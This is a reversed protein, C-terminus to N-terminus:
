PVITGPYAYEAGNGWRQTGVTIIKSGKDRGVAEALAVEYNAMDEAYANGKQQKWTWIIGLRHAREDLLFTDTDLTFFEQNSGSVPDVTNKTIYFFKADEGTALAPMIHVQNGYITWMGTTTELGSTVIGLWEDTDTIHQLPYLPRSTVWLTTKKLQRKYDAPLSFSETVGDGTFTALTKLAQWDYHEAMDEAVANATEALEIHERETSAFVTTPVTLGMKPAARQIVSLVTM